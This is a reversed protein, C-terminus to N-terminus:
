NHNQGLFKIRFFSFYKQFTVTISKLPHLVPFTLLYLLVATVLEAVLLFLVPHVAVVVVTVAVGILILRMAFDTIEPQSYCCEIGQLFFILAVGCM